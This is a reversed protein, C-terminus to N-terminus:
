DWGKKSQRTHRDVALRLKRLKEKAVEIGWVYDDIEVSDIHINIGDSYEYGCHHRTIREKKPKAPKLAFESKALEDLSSQPIEPTKGRDVDSWFGHGEKSHDWVFCSALRYVIEGSQKLRLQALVQYPETLPKGDNRTILEKYKM